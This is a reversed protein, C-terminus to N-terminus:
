LGGDTSLADAHHLLRVFASTGTLNDLETMAQEHVEDSVHEWKPRLIRHDFEGMHWEVAKYAVPPLLDGYVRRMLQVSREGHEFDRRRDDVVAYMAGNRNPKDLRQYYGVKCADHFVACVAAIARWDDGLENRAEEDEEMLDLAARTVGLSHLSLGGPVCLRFRTSAPSEFFGHNCAWIMMDATAEGYTENSLSDELTSCYSEALARDKCYANIFMMSPLDHRARGCREILADKAKREDDTLGFWHDVAKRSAVMADIEVLEEKTLFPIDDDFVDQAQVANDATTKGGKGRNRTHKSMKHESRGARRPKSESVFLRDFVM